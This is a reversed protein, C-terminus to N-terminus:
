PRIETRGGLIRIAFRERLTLQRHAGRANVIEPKGNPPYNVRVSQCDLAHSAELLSSKLYEPCEYQVREGDSIVGAIGQLLSALDSLNDKM